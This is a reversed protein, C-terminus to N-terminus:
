EQDRVNYKAKIIDILSMGRRSRLDMVVCMIFTIWQMILFRTDLVLTGYEKVSGGYEVGFMVGGSLIALTMAIRIGELIM